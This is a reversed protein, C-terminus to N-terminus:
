SNVPCNVTNLHVLVREVDTDSEGKKRKERMTPSTMSEISLHCLAFTNNSVDGRM